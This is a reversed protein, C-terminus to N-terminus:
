GDGIYRLITFYFWVAAVIFAILLVVSIAFVTNFCTLILRGFRTLQDDPQRDWRRRQPM